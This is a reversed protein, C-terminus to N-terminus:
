NIEIAEKEYTRGSPTTVPNDMQVLTIPCNLTDTM